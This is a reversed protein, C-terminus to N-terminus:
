KLSNEPLQCIFTALAHLRVDTQPPADALLKQAAENSAVSLVNGTMRVAALDVIRQTSAADWGTDAPRWTDPILGTAIFNNQLTKAFRWRQLLANSSVNYGDDEPYGDPTARDFMAMGSGSIMDNVPNPYPAQAMRATRVAFDIPSTVKGPSAWFDPHQSMALLMASIDGGTELYVQALDDVLKPPAPNFVYQECLKRSIFAACSPHASLMELAMLPRDFRKDPEVGPFEVGFVRCGDPSNLNSDYGFTRDLDGSSGDLPAEDALTWGTLLGALTTVDKQTYGGKVGLTHLEMIERAYNENLRQAYSNRQDLYVLMAPSTASTFLLDFFPALGLELFSQHEVAKAGTGDKSMWTSFHNETWMVFRARVPNPESLLYQLASNTVQGGDHIDPFQAHLAAQLNMEGASPPGQALRAQLWNQEGMTLIDAVESPEPGYGFRNLLFVAREYKSLSTGSPAGVTFAVETSAGQNGAEDKAIVQLQHRGPKLDRTLLPFVIPGVGHLPKQNLHLPQGDISLDAAAVRENDMVRAVVVDAGSTVSKPAYTIAVQPPTTDPKDDIPVLQVSQIFLNRDGKADALDNTFGVTLRKVGPNFQIMGGQVSAIQTSAVPFEGLKTEKGNSTVKVSLQPAGQYQDGKAQVVVKYNGALDDPLQITSEGNSCFCTLDPQWQKEYPTKNNLGSDFKTFTLMPRFARHPLPFDAPVNLTFPVSQASEGSPLSARLEVTNAGPKFASPDITFQPASGRQEAVVTQNVLLQVRAKPPHDQEPWWCQAGVEVTGTIFQGDLRNDTFAVHLDCAGRHGAQAAMAMMSNGAEPAHAAAMAMMSGGGNAPPVENADVRAFEYKQIYVSRTDQPGEGFGNRIRVSVIHGGPELTFPRGVPVRQWETTALRAQSRTQDSEDVVISLTPLGDGGFEGRATVLMQYTAKKDVWVPFCWPQGQNSDDIISGQNYKDDSLVKPPHGGMNAPRDSTNADPCAGAMMVSAAPKIANVTITNSRVERGAADKQVAVLQNFGPALDDAHVVYAWRAHPGPKQDPVVHGAIEEGGPLRLAPMPLQTPDDLSLQEVGVTFEGWIDAGSAPATIQPKLEAVRGTSSDDAVDLNLQAGEIGIRTTGVALPQVRLYGIKEGKLVRPPILLHLAKEDVQFSYYRDEPAPQALQFFILQSRGNWLRLKKSFFSIGSHSSVNVSPVPAITTALSPPSWSFSLLLGV